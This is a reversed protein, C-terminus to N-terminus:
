EGECQYHYGCEYDECEFYKNKCALRQQEESGEFEKNPRYAM